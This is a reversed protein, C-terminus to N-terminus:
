RSSGIARALELILPHPEPTPMACSLRSFCAAFLHNSTGGKIVDRQSDENSIL